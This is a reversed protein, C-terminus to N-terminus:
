TKIKLLHEAIKMAPESGRENGSAFCFLYLPNNRSNRLVFATPYVAYFLESLRGLLFRAVGDCDIDRSKVPDLGLSLEPHCDIRYFESEWESTGLMRTIRRRWADPPLAAKTLLRMVGVGLPFLLWLDVGRTEALAEFTAWDVQMGYPDLFVVARTSSWDQSGSWRGLIENADGQRIKISRARDPFQLKLNELQACRAESHEIFLYNKFPPEVELACVASGKLFDQSEDEEFGEFLEPDSILSQDGTHIYGSGAFADVYFTDFFRARENAAFIYSYARLYGQLIQLKAATWSGGFTHVMSIFDLTCRTSTM